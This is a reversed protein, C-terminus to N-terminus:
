ICETQTKGLSWHCSMLLGKKHVKLDNSLECFSFFHLNPVDAVLPQHLYIVSPKDSSSTIPLTGYCPQSYHLLLQPWSGSVYCTTARAVYFKTHISTQLFYIWNPLNDKKDRSILTRSTLVYKFYINWRGIKACKSKIADTLYSLISYFPIAKNDDYLLILVATRLTSFGLFYIFVCLGCLCACFCASPFGALDALSMREVMWDSM